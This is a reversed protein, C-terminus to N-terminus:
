IGVENLRRGKLLCRKLIVSPTESWQKPAMGTWGWVMNYNM